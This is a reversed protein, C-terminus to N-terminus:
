IDVVFWMCNWRPSMCMSVRKSIETTPQPPSLLASHCYRDTHTGGVDDPPSQLLIAFPQHM